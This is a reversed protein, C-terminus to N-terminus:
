KKSTATKAAKTTKATTAVKTTKTTGTAETTAATKAPKKVASGVAQSIHTFGDKRMLKVLGRNVDEIFSPGNFILGTILGVYQAGNVIKEYADEASLVGGVGVIMLRDGYAEYTQRVLATSLARVPAGSLGGKVSEPLPDKLDIKSRDKALNSVTVGDVDHKVIVDLLEKFKKWPLDAPMKILIPQPARVADVATLLKELLVPTTFTEGGFANPCSINIEIIAVAPSHKAQEISAVYDAVGEDPGSAEKSNTRAVSLVVPHVKQLSRPLQHLRHLIPRVGENALGVHVAISQTKPLRYFWPKPNGACPQSTVSGVTSFGFGISRMMRVTKANKDFGAAVGLPSDFRLGKWTSELEPHRRASVGRVVGTLGPVKAAGYVVQTLNHHIFDPSTLFLVPKIAKIYVTTRITTM